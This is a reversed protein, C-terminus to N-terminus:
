MTSLADHEGGNGMSEEWATVEEELVEIRSGADDQIREFRIWGGPLNRLDAQQLGQFYRREWMQQSIDDELPSTSQIWVQSSLTATVSKLSKLKQLDNVLVKGWLNPPAASFRNGIHIQVKEVLQEGHSPLEFHEEFFPRTCFRNWVRFCDVKFNVFLTHRLKGPARPIRTRTLIASISRDKRCRIYYRLGEERSERCIQLVAPHEDDSEVRAKALSVGSAIILNITRPQSCCIKWIIGRLEPPLNPFLTFTKARDGYPSQLRPLRGLLSKIREDKISQMPLMTDASTVNATVPQHRETM